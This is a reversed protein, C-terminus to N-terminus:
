SAQCRAILEGTVTTLDGTQEFMSMHASSSLIHVESHQCLAAQQKVSEVPIGKDHEGAVFLIPGKFDKLVAEQNKRDRMAITYGTVAEETAESAINKVRPIFENRSDAFLPEIFNTTFAKVGNRGIFEIAKTRSEKKEAHDALATSHLLGFGAFLGPQQRVMELAVYGGLSHGILVIGNIKEEHIWQLMEGAVDELTFGSPLLASEGFGPLDPTYIKYGLAALASDLPDWLSQNFPFGHLLIVPQGSGKVSFFIKSM